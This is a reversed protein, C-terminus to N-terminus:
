LIYVKKDDLFIINHNPLLDQFAQPTETHIPIIGTKPNVTECFNKICPASAHGSTHLYIYDEGLFNKLKPNKEIYGKWMSYIIKGQIGNEKLQQMIEKHNPTCRILFCCGRKQIYPILNEGWSYIYIKKYLSSSEPHQKVKEIIKSQYIDSILMQRNQLAHYAAAIRDINTSSCLLFAYKHQKLINALESSLEKETLPKEQCRTINTGETIIIDINKAYYKSIADISKHLYGHDRFDGTYLIRKNEAEIIFMYADYASHDTFYPTIKIDKIVISQGPEFTRITELRNINPKVNNHRLHEELTYFIEKSLKGMYLPIEEFINQFLGIHDGHYHSFFVADANAIGTNVGDVLLKNAAQEEGDLDAGFDLFIRSQATRIECSCGGIQKTGRHITIEM